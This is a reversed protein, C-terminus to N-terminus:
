GACRFYRPRLRRIRHYPRHHLLLLAGRRLDLGRTLLLYGGPHLRVRGSRDVHITLVHHVARQEGQM